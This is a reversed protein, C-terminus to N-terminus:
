SAYRAPKWSFRPALAESVNIGYLYPMKHKMWSIGKEYDFPGPMAFEAGEIGAIGESAKMGLSYLVDVFAASTQEAPPTAKVISDLRFGQKHCVAASIHSGGVDYVLVSPDVNTQHAAASLRCEKPIKRM